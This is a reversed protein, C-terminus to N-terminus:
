IFKSTLLYGTLLLLIGVLIGFFSPISSISFIIVVISASIIGYISYYTETTKKELLKEIIKSIVVIGILVGVGFTGLIVVNHAFLDLSTLSSIVEVIPKYFGILMLVFSGSIGPIVMTAAAIIGVIFLKILLIFDLNVLSVVRTENDIFTLCFILLFSILFILFTKKTLTKKSVKKLLFPFGGLILGVFLLVTQFEYEELTFNILKSLLLISIVMGLFIPILFLINKVFDKFINSAIHILKEFIGLSMAVTGGSVGPIINAIGLVMGILFNKINIKM